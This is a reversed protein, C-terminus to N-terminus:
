RFLGDGYSCDTRLSPKLLDTVALKKLLDHEGTRNVQDETHSPRM